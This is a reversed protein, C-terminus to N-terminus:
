AMDMSKHEIKKEDDPKILKSITKTTPHKSFLIGPNYSGLFSIQYTSKTKDRFYITIERPNGFTMREGVNIIDSIPIKSEGM